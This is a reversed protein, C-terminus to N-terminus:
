TRPRAILGSLSVIEAEVAACFEISYEKRQAIGSLERIYSRLRADRMSSQIKRLETFEASGDDLPNNDQDRVYPPKM